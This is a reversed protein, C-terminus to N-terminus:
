KTTLFDSILARCEDPQEIIVLHAADSVVALEANPMHKMCLQMDEPTAMDYQGCIFLTSVTIKDLEPVLNVDKLNGTALTEYSGWMHKYITYNLPQMQPWQAMRCFFNKYFIGVAQKYESTDTTGNEEHQIMIQGVGGPLTYALRKCAQVWMPASLCPGVLVLKELGHGDHLAYYTALMGGWSHGLLVFKQYGLEHIVQQLEDFYYDIDWKAFDQDLMKSRGCGSQDYVIVPRGYAIERLPIFFDSSAGPGGHLCILPINEASEKTYMKQYWVTAYQTTVYGEQSIIEIGDAATTEQIMMSLGLLLLAKYNM